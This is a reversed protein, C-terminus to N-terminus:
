KYDPYYYIFFLPVFFFGLLGLLSYLHAFAKDAAENKYDYGYFIRKFFFIIIILLCYENKIVVYFDCVYRTSREWEPKDDENQPSSSSQKVDVPKKNDGAPQSALFRRSSNRLASFQTKSFLGNNITSSSSSFVLSRILHLQKHNQATSLLSNKSNLLLGM